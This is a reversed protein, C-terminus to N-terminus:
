LLYPGAIVFILIAFFILSVANAFKKNTLTETMFGGDLPKIPLVNIVAVGLCVNYIFFILMYLFNGISEPLAKLKYNKYSQPFVFDVITRCPIMNLIYVYRQPLTLGLFAKGNRETLTINKVENSTEIRVTDGPQYHSLAESLDGWSGIKKDGIKKISGTLNNRVAPLDEFLILMTSNVQKDLMSKTALYTNEPTRVELLGESFNSVEIIESRNIVNKPYDYIIGEYSFAAFLFLHFILVLIFGTVINSFSGAAYVQLKKFKSAKKLQKEDPEVFAGPIFLLLFVGLSKIRLKNLALAFGHSLEHPFILVIIAILWYWIPVLLIGPHASFSSTPGPFVLSLTPAGFGQLLNIVNNALFFVGFFMAVFSVAIGITFYVKWFVPNKEVVRKILTRLRKTKLMVFVGQVHLSKRKWYVTIVLAVIFIVFGIVGYDM